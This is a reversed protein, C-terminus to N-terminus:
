DEEVNIGLKKLQEMEERRSVYEYRKQNAKLLNNKIATIELKIGKIQKRKERQVETKFFTDVASLTHYISQTEMIQKELFGYVDSEDANELKQFRTSMRNSLTNLLKGKKLTKEIFQKLDIRMTKSTSTKEDFYEVEYVTSQENKQVVKQLWRRFRDSFSAKKSQLLILNDNLKLGANYLSPGAAGIAKVADMLITRYDVAPKKVKEEKSVQLQSLVDRRLNAGESSYDEDLVEKVLEPYFPTGTKSEAFARKIMKLTNERNAPVTGPDIGTAPIVTRRLELKYRQKQYFMIDKLAAMIERSSAAMQNQADTLIGASLTDSGQKVKDSIEDLVRTNLNNCAPSMRDWLIYQCLNALLKIQKLDLEDVKFQYYNNLFDLQTEFASLRMGMENTKESDAIPGKPPIEIAPVKQEYKYPDKFILSKRVLVDYYNKFSRHYKGFAEKIKPLYRSELDRHKEELAAELADLYTHAEEM